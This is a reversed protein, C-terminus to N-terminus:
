SIPSRQLSSHRLLPNRISGNGRPFQRVEHLAGFCAKVLLPVIMASILLGVPLDIRPVEELGLAGVRGSPGPRSCHGPIVPNWLTLYREFESM